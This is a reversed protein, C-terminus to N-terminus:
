KGAMLEEWAIANKVAYGREKVYRKLVDELYEVKDVQDGLALTKEIVEPDVAVYKAAETKLVKGRPPLRWGKKLQEETPGLTFFETKELVLAAHEAEIRRLLKKEARYLKEYKQLLQPQKISEHGLKSYDIEKDAEWFQYLEDITMHTFKM